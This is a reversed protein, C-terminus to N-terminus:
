RKTVPKVIQKGQQVMKKVSSEESGVYGFTEIDDSQRFKVKYFVPMEGVPLIETIKHIKESYKQYWRLTVAIPQTESLSFEALAREYVNLRELCDSLMIDLTKLLPKNKNRLEEKLAQNREEITGDYIHPYSSYINYFYDEENSVIFQKTSIEDRRSLEKERLLEIKDKLNLLDKLSNEKVKEIVDLIL